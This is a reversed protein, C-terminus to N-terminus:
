QRGLEVVSALSLLAPIMTNDANKLQGRERLGRYFLGAVEAAHPGFMLKGGRLLVVVAYKPQDESSFSAFWGLHAGDESCTGTKGFIQEEPDYASHGTGYVVAAAMGRRVDPFFPVMADLQRRVRPQFNTLEEPTRPYQLYHLTGGNAITSVVAALQMPTIEIDQGFYALLGVGGIKPPASPFRGASEGPIDWGTREGLGFQHAYEAVRRFGLMEGLKLFFDNNSHALAETITQNAPGRGFVRLQTTPSIIGEKLAALGVVPKFTSCPTYAGTLALRQNVISLIRGTNPDLVVVAGNFKGLAQVAAARVVPDEGTADDGATSDGYSSVTWPSWIVRRRHRVRIGPAGYTAYAIRRRHTSTLRSAALSRQGRRSSTPPSSAVRHARRLSSSHVGSHRRHVTAGSAVTVGFVFVIALALIATRKPM